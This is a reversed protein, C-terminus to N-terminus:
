EASPEEQGQDDEDKSDEDQNPDSEPADEDKDKDEDEDDEFEAVLDEFWNNADLLIADGDLEELPRDGKKIFLTPTNSVGAYIGNPDSLEKQDAEIIDFIEKSEFDAKFTELDLGLESAKQNFFKLRITKTLGNQSATLYSM